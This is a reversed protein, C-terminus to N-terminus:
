NFGVRPRGPASSCAAVVPPFSGFRLGGRIAGGEAATSDLPGLEPLWRSSEVPGGGCLVCRGRVVCTLAAFVAEQM